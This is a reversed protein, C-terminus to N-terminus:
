DERQSLSPSEPFSHGPLSSSHISLLYSTFPMSLLLNCINVCIGGHADTIEFHPSCKLLDAAMALKEAIQKM